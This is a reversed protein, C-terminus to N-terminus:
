EEKLFNKERKRYEKLIQPVKPEFVGFMPSKGISKEGIKRIFCKMREMKM